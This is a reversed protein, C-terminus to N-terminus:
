RMRRNFKALVDMSATAPSVSRSDQRNELPEDLSRALEVGLVVRYGLAAAYAQLTDLQIRDDAQEANIVATKSCPPDRADALAQHSAGVLIRLSRLPAKPDLPHLM